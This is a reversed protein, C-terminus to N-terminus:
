YLLTSSGKLIYSKDEIVEARKNERFDFKPLKKELYSTDFKGERFDKDTVIAKHLPINTIIGDIYFEDLARVAKKVAGDWDLAYVILKGIM